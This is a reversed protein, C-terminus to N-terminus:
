GILKCGLKTKRTCYVLFASMLFAIVCGAIPLCIRGLHLPVSTKYYLIELIFQHYIYIGFSMSSVYVVFKSLSFNSSCVKKLTLVYLIFVGLTAYILMISKIFFNKIIKYVISTVTIDDIRGILITGFIFVLAYILIAIILVKKSVNVFKNRYHYVLGGLYFFFFYYLTSSLRFPLPLTSLTSFIALVILIYVSDINISASFRNICYAIIFCFFLMPLFWLHGVGIVIDYLFKLRLSDVEHFLFAYIVGFVICPLLLRRFKSSILETLSSKKFALQHYFIYGSIFVFLELMCSFTLKQIWFYM